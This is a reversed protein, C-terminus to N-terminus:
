WELRMGATYISTVLFMVVIISSVLIIYPLAGSLWAMFPVSTHFLFADGSGLLRMFVSSPFVSSIFDLYAIYTYHQFWYILGTITLVVFTDEIVSGILMALAM